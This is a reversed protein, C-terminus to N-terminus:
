SSPRGGNPEPEDPRVLGYRAMHLREQRRMTETEDQDVHDYGLVHLVGHIVLLSLEADTTGAHTPAQREAVSPCVVVDGLHVPVNLGTTFPDAPGDLPFALVDTPGQKGMHTDNLESIAQESVFLLDLRGDTVGEHTLTDVAIAQWRDLDISPPYENQDIESEVVVVLGCDHDM